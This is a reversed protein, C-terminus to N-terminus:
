GPPGRGGVARRNGPRYRVICRHDPCRAETREDHLSRAAHRRTASREFDIPLLHELDDKSPIITVEGLVFGHWIWRLLLAVWALFDEFARPPEEVAFAIGARGDLLDHALGAEGGAAEIPMEAGLILEVRRGDPLEQALLRGRSPLPPARRSRDRLGVSLADDVGIERALVEVIVVAAARQKPRAGVDVAAPLRDLGGVLLDHLLHDLDELVM